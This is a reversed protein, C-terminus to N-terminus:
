LGPPKIDGGGPEADVPPRYFWEYHVWPKGDGDITMSICVHYDGPVGGIQAAVGTAAEIVKDQVYATDVKAM